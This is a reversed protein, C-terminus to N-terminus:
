WRVRPFCRAELSEYAHSRYPSDWSFRIRDAIRSNEFQDLSACFTFLRDCRRHLTNDANTGRHSGTFSKGPLYTRCNSPPVASGSSPPM